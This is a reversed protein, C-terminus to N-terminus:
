AKIIKINLRTNNLIDAYKSKYHYFISMFHILRDIQATIHVSTKTNMLYEIQLANLIFFLCMIRNISPTDLFHQGQYIMNQCRTTTGPYHGVKFLVNKAYLNLLSSKGVNCEGLAVIDYRPAMKLTLKISEGWSPTAHEKQTTAHKRGNYFGQGGVGGKCVLLTSNETNLVGMFFNCKTTFVYTDCPVDIFLTASNKGTRSVQGNLGDPAKYHDKILHLLNNRNAKCVLVVAGGNGGGKGKFMLSGKGGNGGTCTIHKTYYM